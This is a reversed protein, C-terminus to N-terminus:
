TLALTITRFKVMAGSSPVLRLYRIEFFYAVALFHVSIFIQISISHVYNKPTNFISELRLLDAKLPHRRESVKIFSLTAGCPVIGTCNKGVWQDSCECKYDMLLETCTGGNACPNAICGADPFSPSVHTKYM